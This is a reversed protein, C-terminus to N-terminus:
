HNMLSAAQNKYVPNGEIVDIDPSTNKEKQVHEHNKISPGNGYGDFIVSCSTGYHRSIFHLYQNVIDSYIGVQNWVVRHLLADRDLVYNRPFDIQETTKGVRIRLENSLASKNTEQIGHDTFFSTPVPTLEYQFYNELDSPNMRGLVILLSNFLLSNDAIVSKKSVKDKKDLM